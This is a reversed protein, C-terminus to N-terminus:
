QLIGERLWYGKGYGTKILPRPDIAAAKKNIRRIMTAVTDTANEETPFCLKALLKAHVVHPAHYFICHLLRHEGPSLSLAYGMYRTDRIDGTVLLYFASLRERPFACDDRCFDIIRQDPDAENEGLYRYFDGEPLEGLSTYALMPLRPYAARLKKATQGALEAHDRCDIMAAGIVEREATEQADEFTVAFSYIGSQLLRVSLAQCENLHNTIILLM